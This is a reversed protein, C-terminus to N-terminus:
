ASQAITPASSLAPEDCAPRLLVAWAVAAGAIIVAWGISLSPNLYNPIEWDIWGRKVLQELWVDNALNVLGYSLMLGLYAAVVSALTSGIRTRVIRGLTFATFALVIGDMGHHNGLHVAPLTGGDPLQKSYYISKVLPVDGAYVGIDALIWPLGLIVIVIMVWLGFRDKWIWPISQNSGPERMALVTLAISIVVGILPVANIAKADLDSQDVVGPFATVGCFLAGAIGLLSLRGYDTRSRLLILSVGIMALGVLAVPFNSYVLARSLGGAFGDRSVHYFDSAPLRSYTVVITLSLAAVVIWVSVLNARISVEMRQDTPETMMM